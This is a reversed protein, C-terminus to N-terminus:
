WTLTGQLHSIDDEMSDKESKLVGVDVKIDSINTNVESIKADIHKLMRTELAHIERIIILVESQSLGPNDSETNSHEQALAACVLFLLCLIGLLMTQKNLM